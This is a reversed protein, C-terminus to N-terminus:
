VLSLCPPDSRYDWSHNPTQWTPGYHALLYPGPPSPVLTRVGHLTIPEFAAFLGAPFEYRLRRARPGLLYYVRDGSVTVTHIKIDVVPPGAVLIRTRRAKRLLRFGGGSLAQLTRQRDAPWIGLDIDGDSAIFAADRVAGLASGDALWFRVGGRHLCGAVRRWLEVRQREDM